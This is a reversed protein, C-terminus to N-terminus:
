FDSGLSKDLQRKQDTGYEVHDPSERRIGRGKSGDRSRIEPIILKGRENTKSFM